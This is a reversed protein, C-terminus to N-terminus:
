AVRTATKLPCAGQGQNKDTIDSMFPMHELEKANMGDSLETKTNLCVVFAM